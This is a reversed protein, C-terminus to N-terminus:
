GCVPGNVNGFCVARGLPELRRTKKKATGDTGNFLGCSVSQFMILCLKMRM